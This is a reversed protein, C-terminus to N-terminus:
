RAVSYFLFAILHSCSNSNNLPASLKTKMLGFARFFSTLASNLRLRKQQGLAVVPIYGNLIM